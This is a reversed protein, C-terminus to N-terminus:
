AAKNNLYDQSRSRLNSRMVKVSNKRKFQDKEESKVVTNTKYHDQSRSRLRSNKSGIRAEYDVIHYHIHTYM